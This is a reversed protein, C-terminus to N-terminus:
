PCLQRFSYSSSASLRHCISSYKDNSSAIKHLPKRLMLSKYWWAWPRIHKYM